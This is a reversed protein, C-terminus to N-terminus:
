SVKWELEKPGGERHLKIVSEAQPRFKTIAKDRDHWYTAPRDFREILKGDPAYIRCECFGGYSTEVIKVTYEGPHEGIEEAHVQRADPLGLISRWRM